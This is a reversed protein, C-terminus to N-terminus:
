IELKKMIDFVNKYVENSRDGAELIILINKAEYVQYPPKDYNSTVRDYEKKAKKRERTSEFVYISIYNYPQDNVLYNHPSQGKIKLGNQPDASLKINNDSFSKIVDNLSLQPGSEKNFYYILAFSSLILALLIIKSHKKM